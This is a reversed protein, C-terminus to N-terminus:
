GAPALLPLDYTRRVSSGLRSLDAGYIHLSIAPGDGRNRVRHIDGPPTFNVVDGAQNESTGVQELATDSARLAFLEEFEAGQLVGMAGWTVHDHVSTEQGPRWVLGLVSFSGDPEAHLLHTRYGRPDGARELPTLIDPGPLHLRLAEAVQEQTRQWNSHQRIVAQIAALLGGPCRSPESRGIM